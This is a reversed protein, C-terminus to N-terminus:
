FKPAIVIFPRPDLMRGKVIGTSVMYWQWSDATPPLYEAWYRGSKATNETAPVDVADGKLPKFRAVVTGGTIPQMAGGDTMAARLTAGVRIPTGLAVTPVPAPM